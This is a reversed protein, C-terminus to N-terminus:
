KLSAIHCWFFGRFVVSSVTRVDAMSYCCGSICVSLVKLLEEAPSMTAAFWKLSGCYVVSYVVFDSGVRFVRRLFDPFDGQAHSASEVTIVISEFMNSVYWAAFKHIIVLAYPLLKLFVSIIGINSSLACCLFHLFLMSELVLIHFLM